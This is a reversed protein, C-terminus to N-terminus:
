AITIWEPPQSRPAIAIVPCPERRPYGSSKIYSNMRRTKWVRDGCAHPMWYFEDFKKKLATRMKYIVEPDTRELIGAWDLYYRMQGYNQANPPLKHGPLPFLHDFIGLWEADSVIKWQCDRFYAALNRNKYTDPTVHLRATPDLVVHSDAHAGKSNSSRATLDLAFQYWLSTLVTDINGDDPVVEALEADEGRDVPVPQLSHGEAAFSFEAPRVFADDEAAAYDFYIPTRRTKNSVRNPNASRRIQSAMINSRIEEIPVKFFFAFAKPHLASGDNFLRPVPHDPGVCIRRTFIMGYAYSPLTHLEDGRRCIRPLVGEEASDVDDDKTPSGYALIDPDAGDRSVHPLLADMLRKSNAGKDPACHLGNLLWVIGAVLVLSSSQRQLSPPGEMFWKLVLKCALTRM